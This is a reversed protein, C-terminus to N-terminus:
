NEGQLAGKGQAGRRWRRTQLPSTLNKKKKLTEKEKGEKRQLARTTRKLFGRERPRQTETNRQQKGGKRVKTIESMAPVDTPEETKRTGKEVRKKERCKRKGCLNRVPTEVTNGYDRRRGGINKRAKKRQAGGGIKGKKGEGTSRGGKGQSYTSLITAGGLKIEKLNRSL